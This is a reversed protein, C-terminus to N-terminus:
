LGSPIQTTCPGILAEFVAGLEVEFGVNLTIEQEATYTAENPYFIIVTGNTTITQDAAYEGPAGNTIVLNVEDCIRSQYEYAGLDVERIEDYDGDTRRPNNALDVLISDNIILSDIGADIGVSNETLNFDGDTTPANSFNPQNAFMPDENIAGDDLLYGNEVINMAAEPVSVADLIESSNGWFINNKIPPTSHFNVMAGGGNSANSATFTCNIFRPASDGNEGYNFISGGHKTASNGSFLCNIFKTSDTGNQSGINYIAGGDNNSSNGKFICHKFIGNSMHLTTDGGNNFVAGGNVQAENSEFISHSVIPATYGYNWIVGGQFADNAIFQCSDINPAAQGGLTGDNAIAGGQFAFNGSFACKSIIPSANGGSAGYNHIAGGNENGYNGYFKCNSITPSSNKGIGGAYVLIGGGGNHSPNFITDAIGAAIGATIIFGDLICTNSLTDMFLVHNANIGENDQITESIFNGDDNKDDEGLDGSLITPNANLDRQSSSTETGAFGGLIRLDKNIYFTKAAEVLPFAIGNTDIKPRYVGGAVWISDNTQAVSLADQFDNYADQWSTGNNAGTADKKVFIHGTLPRILVVPPNPNTVTPPTVTNPSNQTIGANPDTFYNGDNEYAGMDVTGNFIRNLRLIDYPIPETTDGDNDLDYTDAPLDTNSGADIAPSGTAIRLDNTAANVFLPDQNFIMTGICNEPVIGSNISSCSSAQVLTNKINLFHNNGTGASYIPANSNQWFISNKLDINSATSSYLTQSHSLFGSGSFASNGAFTSNIIEPSNSAISFNSTAIVLLGGGFYNVSNNSFAANIIQPDAISSGYSSSARVELGGGGLIAKNGYFNTNVIKPSSFVSDISSSAYSFIAGGRAYAKNGAFTCNVITPSSSVTGGTGSARAYIAGGVLNDQGATFILGDLRSNINEGSLHFIRYNIGNIDDANTIINDGDLDTDAIGDADGSFITLYQDLDRNALNAENGLFGGYVDLNIDMFFGKPDTPKYVGQAVWVEKFNDTKAKDIASQFDQFATAWTLGDGGPPNALNVYLRMGSCPTGVNEYAGWDYDADAPRANDDLDEAPAIQANGIDRVPSCDNIHFDGDFNPATNFDPLNIFMPNQDLTNSLPLYGREIINYGGLIQGGSDAIESSNGWIISNQLTASAQRNMITGGITAKNAAFTCFNYIPNGISASSARHFIAGGRSSLNGSFLCNTFADTLNGLSWNHYVAGARQTGTNAKFVCSEFTNTCTGSTADNFLGGGYNATNCYFHVDTFNANITGGSIANNYLGGGFNTAQNGVLWLNNFTPSSSSATGDNYIGGGNNDPASGSANGSHIVFGDLVFNSSVNDLWLVHYANAGNQTICTAPLSGSLVDNNDLDGNLITQQMNSALRQDIATETGVFGGYIKLDSSLFFTKSQPNGPNMEVSPLYTGQAVWIEDSGSAVDIADQLSIFADGWSTGTAAGTANINVYLVNKFSSKYWALEDAGIAAAVVDGIGDGDIDSAFVSTVQQFDDEITYETFGLCGDNKWWRIDNEDQLSAVIDYDGDADFDLYHIKENVDQQAYIVHETFNGSGDNEFLSIKGDGALIDQDGDFDFDVTYVDSFDLSTYLHRTYNQTGDNEYWFCDGGVAIVDIDGDGDMDAAKVDRVAVGYANDIVHDTFSENGDNELWIVEQSNLSHIVVDLDLDGDIDTAFVSGANALGNILINETFVQSGDNEYFFIENFDSILIDEDGDQDLDIVFIGEPGVVSSTLLHETFNQSGDNEFWAVEHVISAVGIFDIDGDKDIDHAYSTRAGDWNSKVTHKTWTQTISSANGSSCMCNSCNDIVTMEDLCCGSNGHITRTGMGSLYNCIPIISCSSLNTNNAITLDTSIILNSNFIPLETLNVNNQISLGDEITILSSFNPFTSLKTDRISFFGGISDLNNMASISSLLPNNEYRLSSTMSTVDTPLLASTLIDNNIVLMYFINSTALSSLDFSTLLPNNLIDITGSLSSLNPMSPLATINPNDRFFIGSGISSLNPFDPFSGLQTNSIVLSGGISTLNDMASISSLLPNNFYQLVSTMSTVNTPLLASTLVNNNTVSMYHINSTVLGSLDFSTLLPNNDIDIVSGLTSLNPFTPLATIISNNRFLIGADISTLNPFNPFAALQTHSIVLSGGISTLNDTASISSLLPNNEYQLLSTMNTVDTPILASTLVDNNIISIYHINSTTVASLDFTTLLPNNDIDINGSIMSLNPMSPLATITTNNRIFIGTSISSLNPFDPFTDIQTDNITLSGGISTLNPMDSIEALLPNGTYQLNGSMTTIATPIKASTLAPNDTIIISGINGVRTLLVLDYTSLGNNGVITLNGELSDLNPPFANFLLNDQITLGGSTTTLGTMQAVGALADNNQITMTGTVEVIGVLASLDTISGSPSAPGITLGSNLMTCGPYNTTFNDVDAQTELTINGPPCQAQLFHLQYLFLLLLIATKKM